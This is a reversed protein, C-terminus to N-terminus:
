VHSWTKGAIINAIAVNRVPMKNAIERTSMGLRSLERIKLIDAATLVSQGNHEGKAPGTRQQYMEWMSKISNRRRTGMWPYVLMAILVARYGSVGLTYTPKNRNKYQGKYISPAGVLCSVREMVDLDTMNISITLSKGKAIFSGEGELIGALWVIDMLRFKSLEKMKNSM